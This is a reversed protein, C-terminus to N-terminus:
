CLDIGIWELGTVKGDCITLRADWGPTLFERIEEAQDPNDKIAQEIQDPSESFNVVVHQAGQTPDPIEVSLIQWRDFRLERTAVFASIADALAQHEDTTM